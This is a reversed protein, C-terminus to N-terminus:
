EPRRIQIKREPHEKEVVRPITITLVGDVFSADIKNTDSDPPLRFTRRFAGYERESFFYSAGQEERASRKEGRVSLSNEVITIDVNELKVGPLEISIEYADAASLADSKPALWESIKAGVQKLPQYFNPHWGYTHTNEVM